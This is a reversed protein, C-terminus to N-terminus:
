LSLAYRANVYDKISAFDDDSIATNAMMLELLDMALFGGGYGVGVFAAGTLVALTGCSVTQEAASDLTIGLTSGNWRMRVLHYAGTACAVYKSKFGGDYAVVGFGSTTFSLVCDANNDRYVCPDDYINGSPAVSANPKVLAIITGAATTFFTQSDTANILDATAFHAPTHGGQATGATVTGSDAVLNGRSGSSGASATPLWPVGGFDARWWGTLALTAPDFGPELSGGFGLGLGIGIRM